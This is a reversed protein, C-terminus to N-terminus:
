RAARSTWHDWTGGFELQLAVASMGSVVSFPDVSITFIFVQVIILRQSQQLLLLLNFFYFSLLYLHLILIVDNMQM